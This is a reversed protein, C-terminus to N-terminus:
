FQFDFPDSEGFQFDFPMGGFCDLGGYDDSTVDQFFPSDDQDTSFSSETQFAATQDVTANNNPVLLHSTQELSNVLPQNVALDNNPFSNVLPQNVAPFSNALPQIVALDNNPIKKLEETLDRPTQRRIKKKLKGHEDLEFSVPDQGDFIVNIRSWKSIHKM